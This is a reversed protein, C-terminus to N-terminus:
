EIEVHQVGGIKSTAELGTDIPCVFRRADPRLPIVRARTVVSPVQTMEQPRHWGIIGGRCGEFTLHITGLEIWSWRRYERNHKGRQDNLNVIAKFKLTIAICVRSKATFNKVQEAIGLEIEVVKFQQIGGVQLAAGLLAQEIIRVRTRSFSADADTEIPLLM